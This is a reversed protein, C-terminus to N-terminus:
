RVVKKLSLHIYPELTVNDTIPLQATARGGGYTTGKRRGGGGAVKLKPKKKKTKDKKSM